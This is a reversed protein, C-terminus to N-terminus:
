FIGYTDGFDNLDFANEILNYNYIRGDKQMVEFVDFRPQNIISNENMYKMATLIIKKQKSFDVAERASSIRREGRTKVEVFVTFEDNEAILDIEGFRSHYNQALVKFGNKVFYDAAFEEGLKGIDAKNM